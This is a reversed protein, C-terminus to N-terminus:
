ICLFTTLAATHTPTHTEDLKYLSKARREKQTAFREIARNNFDPIDRVLKKEMSLMALANLRDQTMTNKEPLDQDEESYLLVERIWSHDHTHHHPDQPPQCDRHFHESPQEGHFVPVSASCWQLGQVWQQWLHPVTINQAQGQEVHPVGGSNNWASYRPVECQTTPVVRWAVTNRQHPAPHLLVAGQCAGLHYWM